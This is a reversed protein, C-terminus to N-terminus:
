PRDSPVKESPHSRKLYSPTPLTITFQISLIRLAVIVIFGICSATTQNLNLFVGVLFAWCGIFSCTAYLSTQTRFIIPIENLLVDRLVGGFVGTIVGLLSAVFYPMKMALAYSVGSISFLALGVADIINFLQRTIFRTSVFIWPVYVFILSLVFVIVPYEQYRVWFLPRRDLLIDRLTGGGFATVIAVIYTGVLDMNKSRAAFMGSIAAVIVAIAEIWYQLFLFRQLQQAIAFDLTSNISM